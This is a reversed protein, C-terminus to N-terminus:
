RRFDKVPHGFADLEGAHEKDRCSLCYVFLRPLPDSRFSFRLKNLSREKGCWKCQIPNPITFDVRAIQVSM